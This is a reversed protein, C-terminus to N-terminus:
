PRWTFLRDLVRAALHIVLGIAVAEVAGLSMVGERRREDRPM